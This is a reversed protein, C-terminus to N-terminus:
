SDDLDLAARWAGAAFSHQTEFLPRRGRRVGLLLMHIVIIVPFLAAVARTLTAM